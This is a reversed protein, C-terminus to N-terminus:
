LIGQDEYQSWNLQEFLDLTNPKDHAEASNWDMTTYPSATLKPIKHAFSILSEKLFNAMGGDARILQNATSSKLM